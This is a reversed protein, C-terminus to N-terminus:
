INIAIIITKSVNTINIIFLTSINLLLKVKGEKISILHIITVTTTAIIAVIPFLQTLACGEQNLPQNM